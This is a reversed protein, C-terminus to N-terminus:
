SCKKVLLGLGAQSQIFICDNQKQAFGNVATTLSDLSISGYASVIFVGGNMLKPWIMEIGSEFASKDYIDFHVLSFPRECGQIIAENPFLEDVYVCREAVAPALRQILTRTMALDESASYTKKVFYDDHQVQKGWNDWLVLKRGSFAFALLAATGGRLTGVELFDGDLQAFQRSLGYLDYLKRKSVLTNGSIADYVTAFERDDQWPSYWVEPVSFRYRSRDFNRGFLCYVLLTVLSECWPVIRKLIMMNNVPRKHSKRSISPNASM